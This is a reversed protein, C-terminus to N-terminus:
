NLLKKIKRTNKSIKNQTTEILTENYDLTYNQKEIETKNVNTIKNIDDLTKLIKDITESENEDNKFNDSNQVHDNNKSTLIGLSVIKSKMSFLKFMNEASQRIPFNNIKKYLRGFTSSIYDLQWRSVESQFRANELNSTSNNITENQSSLDISIDIENNKIKTLEKLITELIEKCEKDNEM